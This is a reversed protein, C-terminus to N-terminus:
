SDLKERIRSAQSRALWRLRYSTSPKLFSLIENWWPLPFSSSPITTELDCVGNREWPPFCFLSSSSYSFFPAKQMQISLM